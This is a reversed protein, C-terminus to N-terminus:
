RGVLSVAGIRFSVSVLHPAVDVILWRGIRNASTFRRVRGSIATPMRAAQPPASVPVVECPVAEV